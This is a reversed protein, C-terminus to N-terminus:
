GNPAIVTLGSVRGQGLTQRKRKMALLPSSATVNAVVGVAFMAGSRDYLLRIHRKRQRIGRAWFGNVTSSVKIRLDAPLGDHVRGSIDSLTQRYVAPLDRYAAVRQAQTLM